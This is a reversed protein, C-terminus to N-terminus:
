ALVAKTFKRWLTLTWERRGHELDCLYQATIGMANAMDQQSKGNKVREIKAHRGRAKQDIQNGTGLCRECPNTM